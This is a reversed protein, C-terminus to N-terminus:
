ENAEIVQGDFLRQMAVTTAKKGNLDIQGLLAMDNIIRAEKAAMLCAKYRSIGREKELKDINMELHANKSSM